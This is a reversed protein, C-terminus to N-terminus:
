IPNADALEKEGEKLTEVSAVRNDDMGSMDARTKEEYAEIMADAQMAFTREDANQKENRDQVEEELEFLEEGNKSVMEVDEATKTSYKKEIDVIALNAEWVDVSESSGLDYDASAIEQNIEKVGENNDGSIQSDEATKYDVNEYVEDIVTQSTHNTEFDEKNRQHNEKNVDDVIEVVDNRVGDREQEDDIMESVVQNKVGTLKEDSTINDGYDSTANERMADALAAEYESLAASNDRYVDENEGYKLAVGEVINNLQEQDSINV